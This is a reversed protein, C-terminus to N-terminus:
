IMPKRCYVFHLVVFLRFVNFDMKPMSLKLIIYFLRSNDRGVEVRGLLALCEAKLLKFKSCASAIKLAGDAHYVSVIFLSVLEIFGNVIQCNLNLTIIM